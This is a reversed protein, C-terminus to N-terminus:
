RPWPQPFLSLPLSLSLSFSLSPSVVCSSVDSSISNSSCSSSKWFIHTALLYLLTNMQSICLSSFYFSYIQSCIMELTLLKLFLFQFTYSPINFYSWLNLYFFFTFFFNNVIRNWFICMEYYQHIKKWVYVCVLWFILIRHIYVDIIKYTKITLLM